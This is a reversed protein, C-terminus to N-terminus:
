ERLKPFHQNYIVTIHNISLIYIYTNRTNRWLLSLVLLVSLQRININTVHVKRTYRIVVNICSNQRTKDRYVHQSSTEFCLKASSLLAHQVLQVGLDTHGLPPALLGLGLGLLELIDLHHHRLSVPDTVLINVASALPRPGPNPSPSPPSSWASPAPPTQSPSTLGLYISEQNNVKDTM